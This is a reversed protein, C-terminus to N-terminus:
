FAVQSSKVQSNNNYGLPNNGIELYVDSASTYHLM